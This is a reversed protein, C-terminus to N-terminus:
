CKSSSYWINVIDSVDANLDWTTNWESGNTANFLDILAEKQTTAVEAVANFSLFAVAIFTLISKM